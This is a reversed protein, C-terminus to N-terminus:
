HCYGSTWLREGIQSMAPNDKRVVGAGDIEPKTPSRAVERRVRQRRSDGAIARGREHVELTRAAVGWAAWSRDFSQRGRRLITRLQERGEGGLRQRM